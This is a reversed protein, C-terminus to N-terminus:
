NCASPLSERAIDTKNVGHATMNPPASANGCVWAIPILPADDVVAPRMTLTKGKLLANARNGFTMHIAGGEVILASVLNSVVKDAAPLGATSNDPPLTKNSTWNAVIPTKAVAAWAIAEAVQERVLKQQFSPIAMLALISIIAIVVMLEILTV